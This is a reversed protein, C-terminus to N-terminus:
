IGNFSQWLPPEKKGSIKTATALLKFASKQDVQEVSM